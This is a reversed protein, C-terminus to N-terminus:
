LVFGKIFLNVAWLQLKRSFFNLNLIEAMWVVASRKYLRNREHVLTLLLVDTGLEAFVKGM